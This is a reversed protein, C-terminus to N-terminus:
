ITDMLYGTELLVYCHNKQSESAKSQELTGVYNRHIDIFRIDSLIDNQAAHAPNVGLLVVLMLSGLLATKSFTSHNM